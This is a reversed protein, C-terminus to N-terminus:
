PGILRFCIIFPLHKCAAFGNSEKAADLCAQKEQAKLGGCVAAFDVAGIGQSKDPLNGPACYDKIIANVRAQCSANDNPGDGLLHRASAMNAATGLLALLLVLKFHMLRPM